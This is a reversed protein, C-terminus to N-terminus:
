KYQKIKQKNTGIMTLIYCFISYESHISTTILKQQHRKEGSLDNRALGREIPYEDDFDRTRKSSFSGESLM